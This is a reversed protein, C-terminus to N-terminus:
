TTVTINITGSCCGSVSQSNKTLQFPSCSTSTWHNPNVVFCLQNVTQLEWSNSDSGNCTLSFQNTQGCLSFTNSLWATNTSDYTLVYTGAMCSCNSVNTITLHLTNPVTNSPCCATSVGVTISMQCSTSAFGNQPNYTATVTHTGSVATWGQNVTAVNTSPPYNTAITQTGIQTGDVSFTVTGEPCAGSTASGDINTVTATFTVAQGAAPSSPNASLSCQTNCNGCGSPASAFVYGFKKYLFRHVWEGAYPWVQAFNYYDVGVKGATNPYLCAVNPHGGHGVYAGPGHEAIKKVKQGRRFWVALKNDCTLFIKFVWDSPSLALLCKRAKITNAM